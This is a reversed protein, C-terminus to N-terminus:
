LTDDSGVGTPLLRHGEFVTLVIVQREFVQYVIRYNGEILERVDERLLEAVRRGSAPHSAAQAARARLRALFRRAAQRDDQAIYQGIEALDHRARMSWRLRIM